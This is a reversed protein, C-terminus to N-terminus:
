QFYVGPPVVLLSTRSKISKKKFNLQFNQKFMKKFVKKNWKQVKCHIKKEKRKM